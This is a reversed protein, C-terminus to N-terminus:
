RRPRRERAQGPTSSPPGSRTATAGSSRSFTLVASGIVVQDGADLVTPAGVKRGEVFTGNRSGLDEITLRAGEVRLRAHHRSVEVANLRVRVDAARGILTEGEPLAVERDAWAVLWSSRVPEGEEAFAEGCFAYGFRQVTRVYRPTRAPDGLAKRVETVLQALSASSVFTGPWLREGLEAKSLARPRAELLAALLDFAKPTIAVVQGGRTLRRAPGDFVWDGARARVPPSSSLLEERDALL